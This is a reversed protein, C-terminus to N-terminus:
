WHFEDFLLISGVCTFHDIFYFCVDVEPHLTLGSKALAFAKFGQNRQLYDLSSLILLISLNLPILWSNIASSQQPNKTSIGLLVFSTVLLLFTIAVPLVQFFLTRLSPAM